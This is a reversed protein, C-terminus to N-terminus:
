ERLLDDEKLVRAGHFVSLIEVHKEAVHYIIRYNGFVIERINVDEQDEV